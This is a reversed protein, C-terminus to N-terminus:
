SFIKTLFKLGWAYEQALIEMFKARWIDTYNKDNGWQEIRRSFFYGWDTFLVYDLDLKNISQSYIIENSFATLAEAGDRKKGVFARINGEGPFHYSNFLDDFGYFKDVLYNKRLMDNSSNGEINFGEQGPLVKNDTWIKGVIGRQKYMFASFGKSFNWTSFLRIFNWDSLSGLTTSANVDFNIFSVKSDWKLYGVAVKGEEFGLHSSREMEYAPQNYLGISFINLPSRGYIRNRM